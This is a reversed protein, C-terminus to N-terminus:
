LGICVRPKPMEEEAILWVADWRVMLTCGPLPMRKAPISTPEPPPPYGTFQPLNQAPLSTGYGPINIVNIINIVVTTSLQPYSPPQYIAVPAPIFVPVPVFVIVVIVVLTGLNCQLGNLLVKVRAAQSPSLPGISLNIDLVITQLPM